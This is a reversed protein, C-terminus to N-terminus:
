EIKEPQSLSEMFNVYDTYYPGVDNRREIMLRQCFLNWKKGDEKSLSFPVWDGHRNKYHYIEEM